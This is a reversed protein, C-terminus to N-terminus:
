IGDHDKSNPHHFSYVCVCKLVLELKAGREGLGNDPVGTCTCQLVLKHTYLVEKVRTKRNGTTIANPITFSYDHQLLIMM